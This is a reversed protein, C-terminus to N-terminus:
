MSSYKLCNRFSPNFLRKPKLFRHEMELITVNCEDDTTMIAHLFSSIGYVLASSHLADTNLSVGVFNCPLSWCFLREWIANDDSLDFKKVSEVSPGNVYCQELKAPLRRDRTEGPRILRTLAQEARM